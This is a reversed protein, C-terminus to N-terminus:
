LTVRVLTRTIGCHIVGITHHYVQTAAALVFHSCVSFVPPILVTYMGQAYSHAEFYMGSPKHFSM